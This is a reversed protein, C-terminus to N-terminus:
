THRSLNSMLLTLLKGSISTTNAPRILEIDAFKSFSNGYTEALLMKARLRRNIDELQSVGLAANINQM